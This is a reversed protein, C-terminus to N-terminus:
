SRKGCALVLQREGQEPALPTYRALDSLFGVVVQGDCEVWAHAELGGQGNRAVGIRILPEDGGRALLVAAALAQPLCTTSRIYPGIMGLAWAVRRRLDSEPRGAGGRGLASVLRWLLRCPLFRMGARVALLVVLARVLLLRDPWPLDLFRSLRRM